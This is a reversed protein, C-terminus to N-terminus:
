YDFHYPQLKLVEEIDEENVFDFQLRGLRLDAGIVHEEMKLIKTVYSNVGEYRPPMSEYVKKSSREKGVLRSQTMKAFLDVLVFSFTFHLLKGDPMSVSSRNEMVM